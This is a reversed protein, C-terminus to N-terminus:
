KVIKFFSFDAQAISVTSEARRSTDNNYIRTDTRKQTELWNKNTRNELKNYIYM